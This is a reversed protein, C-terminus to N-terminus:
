LRYSSQISTPQLVPYVRQLFSSGIPPLFSGNSYSVETFISPSTPLAVAHIEEPDSDVDNVDSDGNNPDLVTDASVAILPQGRTLYQGSGTSSLDLSVTPEFALEKPSDISIAPQTSDAQWYKYQKILSSVQDLHVEECFKLASLIDVYTGRLQTPGNAVIDSKEFHRERHKIIAWIRARDYGVATLVQTINIWNDVVRLCTFHHNSTGIKLFRNFTTQQPKTIPLTEATCSLQGDLEAWVRQLMDGLEKLGYKECLKLGMQFDVYTGQYAYFGRVIDFPFIMARFEILKSRDQGAIKLIHSANVRFDRKRIM